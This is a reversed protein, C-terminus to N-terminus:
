FNKEEKLWKKKKFRLKKYINIYIEYISITRSSEINWRYQLHIKMEKEREVCGKWRSDIIIIYSRFFSIKKFYEIDKKTCYHNNNITM